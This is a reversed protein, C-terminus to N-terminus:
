NNVPQALNIVPNPAQTVGLPSGNRDRPTAIPTVQHRVFTANVFAALVGVFMMVAKTQDATFAILGFVTLLTLLSQLLALLLNTVVVPERKFLALLSM